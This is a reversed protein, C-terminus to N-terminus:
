TARSGTEGNANAYALDMVRTAARGEEGTVEPPRGNEIGEVFDAILPANLNAAPPHEETRCGSDTYIHLEAGNLPAAVLRGRTGWVSFEDPDVPTGFLCQLSGHMGGCFQFILTACDDAQYDAAVSNCFAKVSAVEGFMDLLLNIRHSGIDMLAGGGGLEPIVRWYGDEGPGIALPTSCIAAASIPSGVAGDAILQKMRHVIPYFRRYYAVGLRVGHDRCAAIMEDCQQANMAMPKECLVHKGAAAVSLTQPHHDKVPTAIYVADVDAAAILDADRTYGRDVGFDDCFQRLKAEDRRCAAVLESGPDDQIAAAVRKRAIDGCGLIGWRITM